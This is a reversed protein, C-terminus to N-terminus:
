GTVVGTGAIVSPLKNFCNDCKSFVKEAYAVSIVPPKSKDNKDDSQPVLCGGNYAQIAVKLCDLKNKVAYQVIPCSFKSALIPVAEKISNSGLWCSKGTETSGFDGIPESYYTSFSPACIQLLGCAGLGAQYSLAKTTTRSGLITISNGCNKATSRAIPNCGGSEQSMMAKFVSAWDVNKNSGCIKQFGEPTFVSDKMKAKQRSNYDEIADKIEQDYCYVTEVKTNALNHKYVSRPNLFADPNVSVGNLFTEFRLSGKVAGIKITPSGATVKVSKKLNKDVSSLGAYVLVLKDCIKQDNEDRPLPNVRCLDQTTKVFKGLEESSGVETVEGTGAVIVPTEKNDKPPSFVIGQQLIGKERLSNFDNFGVYPLSTIPAKLGSFTIALYQRSWDHIAKYQAYEHKATVLVDVLPSYLNKPYVKIGQRTQYNSPLGDTRAYSIRIRRQDFPLLGDGSKDFKISVFAVRENTRENAEVWDSLSARLLPKGDETAKFVFGNSGAPIPIGMTFFPLNESVLPKLERLEDDLELNLWGESLTKQLNDLSVLAEDRSGANSLIKSALKEAVPNNLLVLKKLSAIIKSDAKADLLWRTRLLLLGNKATSSFTLKFNGTQEPNLVATAVFVQDHEDDIESIATPAQATNSAPAPKPNLALTKGTLAERLSPSLITAAYFTAKTFGKNEFHLSESRYNGSGERTGVINAYELAFPLQSFSILFLIFLVPAKEM